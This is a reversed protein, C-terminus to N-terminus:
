NHLALYEGYALSQRSQSCFKKRKKLETARSRLFFTPSSATKRNDYLCFVYRSKLDLKFAPSLSQSALSHAYTRTEKKLFIQCFIDEFPGPFIYHDDFPGDGPQCLM